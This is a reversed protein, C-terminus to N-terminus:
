FGLSNRIKLLQSVHFLFAIILGQVEEPGAATLRVAGLNTLDSERLDAGITGDPRIEYRLVPKFGSARVTVLKDQVQYTLALSDLHHAMGFIRTAKHVQRTVELMLTDNTNM